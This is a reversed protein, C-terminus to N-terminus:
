SLFARWLGPRCVMISQQTEETQEAGRLTTQSKTEVCMSMALSTSVRQSLRTKTCESFGDPLTRSKSCSTNTRQRSRRKCKHRERRRQDRNPVARSWTHDIVTSGHMRGEAISVAHIIEGHSNINPKPSEIAEIARANEGM